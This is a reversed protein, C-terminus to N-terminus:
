KRKGGKDEKEKKDDGKKVDEDAKAEKPEPRDVGALRAAAADLLGNQSLVRLGPVGELKLTRKAVLLDQQAYIAENGKSKELQATLVNLETELEAAKGKAAKEATYLAADAKEKAQKRREEEQKVKIQEQELVGAERVVGKQAETVESSFHIDNVTISKFTLGLGALAEKVSKQMAIGINKKDRLMEEPNKDTTAVTFAKWLPECLMTMAGQIDTVATALKLVDVVKVEEITILPTVLQNKQIAKDGEVPATTRRADLHCFNEEVNEEDSPYPGFRMQFIFDFVTIWYIFIPVFNMGPTATGIVKGLWKIAGVETSELQADKRLASALLYSILFMVWAAQTWEDIGQFKVLFLFFTAIAIVSYVGTHLRSCTIGGVICHLVEWTGEPKAKGGKRKKVKPSFFALVLLAIHLIILLVLTWQWGTLKGWAFYPVAILALATLASLVITRSVKALFNAVTTKLLNWRGVLWGRFPTHFIALLIVGVAVVGLVTLGWFMNNNM